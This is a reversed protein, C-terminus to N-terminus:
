HQRYMLTTLTHICVLSCSNTCDISCTDRETCVYDFVVARFCSLTVEVVIAFVASMYSYHAKLLLTSENILAYLATCLV